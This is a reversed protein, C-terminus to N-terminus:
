VIFEVERGGDMSAVMFDDARGRRGGGVEEVVGLRVTDFYGVCGVVVNM